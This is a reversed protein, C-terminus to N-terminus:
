PRPGPKREPYPKRGDRPLLARIQALQEDTYDHEYISRQQTHDTKWLLLDDFGLDALRGVRAQAEEFGCVLNVSEEDTMSRNPAGLDVAVTAVLARKGGLDRFRKIGERLTQLNTRGGSAMWGDFEQASKKLWIDSYWAGIVIPPGGVVSPWPHLNAKDVQEGNCLRKIVDLHTVLTHFRDEYSM